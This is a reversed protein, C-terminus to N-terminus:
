EIVYNRCMRINISASSQQMNSVDALMQSGLLLLESFASKFAM